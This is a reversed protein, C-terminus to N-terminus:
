ARVGTSVDVFPTELAVAGQDLAPISGFWIEKRAEFATRYGASDVTHTATTIRYRGSFEQGLGELQVVRGAVLAPDGVVSGNGTLRSNLSPILEGLIRRPASVLGLNEELVLKREDPLAAGESDEDPPPPLEGLAAPRISIDLSARDWDYGVTVEFVTKIAPVRLFATVSAIVGVTTLRPSWEILSGGYVYTRTPELEGLPSMFRLRRGGLPGTHDIFMEWGNEAAVKKLFELDSEGEQRRVLVQADDGVSAVLSAGYLIVSLAAGVPDIVPILGNEASVTAAIVPDPIPGNKFFAFPIAFWRSRVSERLRESRDQAAVTLTPMGDSPFSAQRSVVEGVFMQAFGDPQYGLSLRLPVGPELLQNDTWRLYQNAISVEVRHAGELATTHSVATIAGRLDAPIPRDDLELRYDPTYQDTV